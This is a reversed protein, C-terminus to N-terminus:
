RLPNPSVGGINQRQTQLESIRSQVSARVVPSFPPSKKLYKSLLEEEDYAAFLDVISKLYASLYNVKPPIGKAISFQFVQKLQDKLYKVLPYFDQDGSVLIAVDYGRMKSIMDIAIGIDVGKEGERVGMYNYEGHVKELKHVSFPRLKFQGVYKFEIFDVSKQINEYVNDKIDYFKKRNKQYWKEALQIVMAKTLDPFRSQNKSVIRDVQKEDVYWASVTEANYWYTRILRYKDKTQESCKTLIDPFFLEWSFHSEDLKLSSSAASEPANEPIPPFAFEQLNRRFNQGDVFIVTKLEAMEPEGYIRSAGM